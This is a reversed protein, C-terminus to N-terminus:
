SPVHAIELTLQGAEATDAHDQGGPDSAHEPAPWLGALAKHQVTGLQDGAAAHRTDLWPRIAVAGDPTTSTEVPRVAGSALVWGPVVCAPRTWTISETRYVGPASAAMQHAIAPWTEGGWIGPQIETLRRPRGSHRTYNAADYNQPGYIAIKSVAHKERLQLAGIQNNIIDIALDVRITRDIERLDLDLGTRTGSELAGVDCWLGDTDCQIIVNEGLLEAAKGLAVREYSEVLALIAPYASAGDGRERAAHIRGNYHVLWYEEGTAADTAREYYWAKDTLMRTETVDYGRQAFKGVVSRGWQKWMARVIPPWQENRPDGIDLVRNFFPRMAYSTYHFQGRGIARLCGLDRAWAIEPSALTTTFRGVPYWVRGDIRCPFRPVDTEIECEAIIVAKDGNVARHGPDLRTFWTGRKAPMPWSAATTAHAATFDLEAYRGAPQEGHRWCYRRGGYIAARENASADQDEILTIAKAALTHRMARFGCSAGSLSWNGLGYSDWHDMLALVAAALVDTDRACYAFWESDPAAAEPIPQKPLDLMQGIAALSTPLLHHLDTLTLRRRGAALTLFIYEPVTSCTHVHWEGACLFDVLQSTVLDYGLNHCYLWTNERQRTWGHIADALERGTYGHARESVQQGRRPPRRDDLRATWLRLTQDEGDRREARHSETDFTIVAQPTWVKENRRLYRGIM